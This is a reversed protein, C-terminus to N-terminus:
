VGFTRPNLTSTGRFSLTIEASGGTVVATLGRSFAIDLVLYSVAALDVTAIQTTADATGGSPTDYLKLLTGAVGVVIAHLVGCGAAVIVATQAQFIYAYQYEHLHQQPTLGVPGLTLSAM